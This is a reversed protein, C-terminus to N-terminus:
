LWMSVLLPNCGNKGVVQEPARHGELSFFCLAPRALQFDALMVLAHGLTALLVGCVWMWLPLPDLAFPM